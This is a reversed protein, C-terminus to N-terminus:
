AVVALARPYDMAPRDSSLETLRDERVLRPPQIMRRAVPALGIDVYRTKIVTSMGQPETFRLSQQPHLCGVGHSPASYPLNVSYVIVVRNDGVTKSDRLLQM